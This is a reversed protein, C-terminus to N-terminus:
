IVDNKTSNKMEGHCEQPFTFCVTTAEECLLETIRQKARSAAKRVCRSGEKRETGTSNDTSSTENNAGNTNVQTDQVAPIELPFLHNVSISILHKNPLEVVVSRICGDKSVIFEKVRALKWTRCPTFEEKVIVVEGIM